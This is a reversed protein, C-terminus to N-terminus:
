FSLRRILAEVILLIMATIVLYLSFSERQEFIPRSMAIDHPSPNLRGGTASALRELLGYNPAPRPLEADVAPSVTYALPPFTAGGGLPSKLEIYYTGPRPAELNGALEGPVDQS